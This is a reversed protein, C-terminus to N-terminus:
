KTIIEAKCLSVFAPNSNNPGVVVVMGFESVIVDGNAVTQGGANIGVNQTGVPLYTRSANECDAECGTPLPDPAPLYTITDNYTSSTITISAIRCLSIAEEPTGQANTLELLGSNPNNNPGPLLSGLRGSANNGSEMAVIVNDDPYLQILQEIVNRMQDVCLCATELVSPGTPGTPGQPGTPGIEGTAGTAGTPGTAGIGGAPGTPGQPGTPGIGGTAGTAGTPGTAGIGGAPGTPGQPGTPGTPGSPGGSPGTPGTPGTSGIIVCPCCQTRNKKAEEIKRLARKYNENCKM